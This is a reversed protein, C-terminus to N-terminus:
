HFFLKLRQYTAREGSHGGLSSTHCSMIVQQILESNTGVVVRNKYRLIGGILTYNPEAQSDVSLKRILEKYYEDHEYSNM